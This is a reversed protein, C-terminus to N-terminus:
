NPQSNYLKMQEPSTTHISILNELGYKRICVDCSCCLFREDNTLQINNRALVSGVHRDERWEDAPIDADAVLKMSKRALQYCTGSAYKLDASEIQYGRYDSVLPNSVLRDIFLAVDDDLKTLEQYGARYAWDCVKKVKKPLGYYDDAADLEICYPLRVEQEGRGVFFRLDIQDAYRCLWTRYWTELVAKIRNNPGNHHAAGADHYFLNRCTVVALLRRVLGSESLSTISRTM